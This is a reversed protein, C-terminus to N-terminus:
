LEGGHWVVRGSVRLEAAQEASLQQPRFAPNYSIIQLGGTAFDRQLLKVYDLGEIEIVYVGDQELHHVATDVLLIDGDNIKDAMSNGRARIIRADSTKVGRSKLWSKKFAFRGLIEAGGNVSGNGASAHVDLHDVLAFEEDDLASIGRVYQSSGEFHMWKVPSVQLVDALRLLQEINAENEGREIRGVTNPHMNAREALAEITMSAKKRAERVREGQQHRLSEAREALYDVVPGSEGASLPANLPPQMSKRPMAQNTNIRV